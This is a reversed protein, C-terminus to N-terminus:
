LIGKYISYQVGLIGVGTRKGVKGVGLREQRQIEKMREEAKDVRIQRKSIATKVLGTSCGVEIRAQTM